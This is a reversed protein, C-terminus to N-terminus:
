QSPKLGLVKGAAAVQERQVKIAAAMDAGTGPIIVQGGAVLRKAIEPDEAIEKVDAAIKARVDDSMSRPGFFGTLGEFFLGPFGAEKVTPVDPAAPARQSGTVALIRVRNAQAQPRIIAYAGVYVHIRGEALDNIASVTDKYPVKTMEIGSEKLFGAFLFDNLGTATAWNLKGQEARAAKMLDALTKYESKAPVAIAVITSTV